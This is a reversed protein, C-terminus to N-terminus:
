SESKESKAIQLELSLRAFHEAARGIEASIQDVRTQLDAEPGYSRTNDVVEEVGGTASEGDALRYRNRLERLCDGVYEIAGDRFGMATLLKKLNKRGPAKKRREYDSISSNGIGAAHALDNQKWRLSSRLIILIIDLDEEESGLRSLPNRPSM